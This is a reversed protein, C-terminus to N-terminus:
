NWETNYYFMMEAFVYL